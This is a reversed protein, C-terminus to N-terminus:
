RGDGVVLWGHGPFFRGLSFSPLSPVSAPVNPSMMLSPLSVWRLGYGPIFDRFYSFSGVFPDESFPPIRTSTIVPLSLVSISFL